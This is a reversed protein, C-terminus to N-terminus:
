YSQGMLAGLWNRRGRTLSEAMLEAVVRAKGQSKGMKTLLVYYIVKAKRITPTHLQEIQKNNGTVLNVYYVHKIKNRSLSLKHIM